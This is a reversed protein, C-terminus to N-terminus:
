RLNDDEAEADVLLDAEEELLLNRVDMLRMLAIFRQEERAKLMSTKHQALIEQKEYDAMKWRKEKDPILQELFASGMKDLQGKKKIYDRTWYPALLIELARVAQAFIAIGDSDSATTCLRACREVQFNVSQKYGIDERRISDDDIVSWEGSAQTFPKRRTKKLAM